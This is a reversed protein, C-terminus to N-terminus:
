ERALHLFLLLGCQFAAVATIVPAALHPVRRYMWHLIWLVALTGAAKCALFFTLDRGGLRMLYWCVPNKEVEFICVEFAKVLYGDWCSVGGIFLWAAFYCARGFLTYAQPRSASELPLCSVELRVREGTPAPLLPLALEDSL